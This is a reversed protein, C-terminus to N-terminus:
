DSKILSAVCEGVYKGCRLAEELTNGNTGIEIILAGERAHGNFRERRINLPRALTPYKDTIIKQLRLGYKINEKFNDHELGGRNTGVIIMCQAVAEGNIETVAKYYSGNGDAIADRHIDLVVDITPNNELNKNITELARRYSGAYEVDHETRDHIVEVGEERLRNAIVEGVATVNMSSDRTRYADTEQYTHEETPTFAESTHTHVILVKSGGGGYRVLPESLLADKDFTYDTENAIGLGALQKQPLPLPEKKIKIIEAFDEDESIEDASLSGVPLMYEALSLIIPKKEKEIEGMAASASLNYKPFCDNSGLFFGTLFLLMFILNKIGTGKSKDKM